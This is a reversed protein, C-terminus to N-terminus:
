ADETSVVNGGGVKQLILERTEDETKGLAIALEIAVTDLCAQLTSNESTSLPKGLREAHRTLDRIVMASQILETSQVRSTTTANREAWVEPVESDEELLALIEAAEQKSAPSRIGVEDLSAVPLMITMDKPGFYLEIYNEASKGSGRKVIGQVTAVGHRPHVVTDGKTYGM